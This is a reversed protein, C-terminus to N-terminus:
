KVNERIIKDIWESLKMDEKLAQIRAKKWIEIDVKLSVAKKM